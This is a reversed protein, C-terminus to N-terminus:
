IFMKPEIDYYNTLNKFQMDNININISYLKNNVTRIEKCRVSPIIIVKINNIMTMIKFWMDDAYPSLEKYKKSFVLKNFFIPSYIVGNNGIALTDFSPKKYGDIYNWTKYPLFNNNHVKINRGNYAIIYKENNKIFANYLNKIWNNPYITDDDATILVVNSNQYYKEISPILKRYPGTNEVYKINIIKYKKIIKMLIKPIHHIGKDFLYKEKSIYINIEDAQVHQKLFSYLIVPLNNIRDSITTMSIVIKHKRNPIDYNINNIKLNINKFIYIKNRNFKNSGINVIKYLYWTNFIKEIIISFKRFIIDKKIEFHDSSYIIVYKHANNFSTILYNKFELTDKINHITDLLCVLDAQGNNIELINNNRIKSKINAYKTSSEFLINSIKNIKIFNMLFTAIINKNSM